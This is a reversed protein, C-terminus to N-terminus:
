AGPKIDLQRRRRGSHGREGCHLGRGAGSEHALLSEGVHEFWERGSALHKNADVVSRNGSRIESSPGGMRRGDTPVTTRAAHGLPQPEHTVEKSSGSCFRAPQHLGVRGKAEPRVNHAHDAKTPLRSVGPEPGTEGDTRAAFVYSTTPLGGVTSLRNGQRASTRSTTASPCQAHVHLPHSLGGACDSWERRAAV